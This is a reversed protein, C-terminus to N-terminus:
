FLKFGTFLSPYDTEIIDPGTDLEKRYAGMRADHPQVRDSTPHVSIMCMVGHSRLLEYVEKQEPKMSYGVYAMIRNWPIGSNKFKNYDEMNFIAVCFMVHDNREFYFLAEELSRVSLIIHIWKYKNLMRSYIEWPVKKNDLNFVTKGRGWELMEVLTPIKYPTVNGDRDKLNLKKLEAWTRDSVKGSGNTTRDLTEDHMLVLVSDRTLRPDIEFFSPMMSLTKRCSEICNEPYGTMMGGRHGSIIIPKEERYTFYEQLQQMNRVNTRHLKKATVPESGAFLTLIIVMLSVTLTKIKM